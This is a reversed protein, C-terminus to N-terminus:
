SFKCELNNFGLKKSITLRTDHNSKADEADHAMHKWSECSTHYCFLMIKCSLHTELQERPLPWTGVFKRFDVCPVAAQFVSLTLPRCFEIFRGLDFYSWVVKCGDNVQIIKLSCISDM